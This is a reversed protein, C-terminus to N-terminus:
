AMWVDRELHGIWQLALERPPLGALKAIEEDPEVMAELRLESIALRRAAAVSQRESQTLLTDLFVDVRESLEAHFVEDEAVVRMANAVIPDSAALSQYCGTLAGYTERIRGEVANELAIAHASRPTTAEVEPQKPEAGFHRAVERMVEAHQVEDAAARRTDAILETPADLRQLEDALRQFALVAAAELTAIEAFHAGIVSDSGSATGAVLGEPRRGICVGTDPDYVESRLSTVTGDTAVHLLFRSYEIPCDNTIQTVVVEYGDTVERASGLTPDGCMPAKGDFLAVLLAEHPTDVTGLFELLEQDSTFTAVTDGNTTTIHVAGIEAAAEVLVECSEPDVAMSCPQGESDLLYSFFGPGEAKAYVALYDYEVSPNLGQTPRWRLYSSGSEGIAECIPLIV